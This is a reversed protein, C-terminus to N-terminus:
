RILRDKLLTYRKQPKNNRIAIAVAKKTGVLVVMKKSKHDGHLHSEKTVVHLAPNPNPYGCCINVEKLNIFRSLMPTSLRMLSPTSM